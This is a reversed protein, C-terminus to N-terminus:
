IGRADLAARLTKQFNFVHETGLMTYHAGGVEHFRPESRTFNVWKSLHENRWQEKSSAVVALPICYFVDMGCISGSPDYDVAMSQLAFALTAWKNLAEPSLSLELLRDQNSVEMVKAM